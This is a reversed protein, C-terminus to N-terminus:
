LPVREAMVKAKLYGAFADTDSGFSISIALVLLRPESPIETMINVYDKETTIIYDAKVDRAKKWIIRLEDRSYRHHDPFELFDMIRGGLRSVTERFSDNRVIGSFVLLSQGQIDSLELPEKSVASFLGEPVHACRFIPRGTAQAEIM